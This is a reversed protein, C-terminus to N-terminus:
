EDKGEVTMDFIASTPTIEMTFEVGEVIIDRTDTRNSGTFTVELIDDPEVRPDAYGLLMTRNIGANADNIIYVAEVELEESTNIEESNATKFVNGYQKLNVADIEEHIDVGEMRLRTVLQTGDDIDAGSIAGVWPSGNNIEVRDKFFHLTGQDHQFNIHKEGILRNINSMGSSGMDCIFNDVHIDLHSWRVYASANAYACLYIGESVTIPAALVLADGIFVSVFGGNVCFTVKTKQGMERNHAMRHELTSTGAWIEVNTSDVLIVHGDTHDTESSTAIGIRGTIGNIYMDIVAEPQPEWYSSHNASLNWGGSSFSVLSGEDHITDFTVDFIGAKRALDRAIYEFSLDKEGGHSIFDEVMPYTSRYVMLYQNDHSSANTDNLGRENVDLRHYIHFKSTEGLMMSPEENLFVRRLGSITQWSGYGTDGVHDKWTEPWTYPGGTDVWQKPAVYDYDTVKYTQGKGPGDVIVLCMDDYTDHAQTRVDNTTFYLEYGTFPGTYPNDHQFGDAEPFTHYDPAYFNNYGNNDGTTNSDKGNYSLQEEDIILNGSSPASAWTAEGTFTTAAIYPSDAKFPAALFYATPNSLWIGSRGRKKMMYYPYHADYTYRTYIAQTWDNSPTAHKKYYCKIEGDTYVMAVWVPTTNTSLDVAYSGLYTPFGMHYEDLFNYPMYKYLGFGRAGNACTDGYLLAFMEVGYSVFTNGAGREEAEYKQENYYNMILGWEEHMYGTTDKSPTFKGMVIGNNMPRELGQLHCIISNAKTGLNPVQKINKLGNTDADEWDGQGRLLHAMDKAYAQTKHPGWYDYDADNNWSELRWGVEDLCILELTQGEETRDRQVRDIYFLSFDDEWNGGVAIRLTVQNGHDLLPDDVAPDLKITLQTSRNHGCSMSFGEIGDTVILRRAPLDSGFWDSPTSRWRNNLGWAWVYTGDYFMRMGINEITGSHECIFMERGICSHQELEGYVYIPMYIQLDAGNSRVLRGTVWVKNASQFAGGVIFRSTDDVIDLPIIDKLYSWNRGERTYYVAKNGSNTACIIFDIDENLVNDGRAAHLYQITSTTDYHEGPHVYTTGGDWLGLRSHYIDNGDGDVNYEEQMYYVGTPHVGAFGSTLSTSWGTPTRQTASGFSSGNWVREQMNGSTDQYWIKDGYIGIGSGAKVSISQNSWSGLSDIDGGQAWISNSVIAVRLIKVTGSTYSDSRYFTAGSVASDSLTVEDFRLLTDRVIMRADVVRDEDLASILSSSITRM